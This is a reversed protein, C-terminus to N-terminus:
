SVISSHKRGNHHCILAIYVFLSLFCPTVVGQIVNFIQLITAGFIGHTRDLSLQSLSSYLSLM